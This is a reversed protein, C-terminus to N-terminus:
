NLGLKKMTRWRDKIMVPTRKKFHYAKFIAKWNGEGFKKVGARIWETEETTWRVKQKKTGSTISTNTSEGGSSACDFLEDEGSWTDMEERWSNVRQKSLRPFRPTRPLTPAEPEAPQAALTSPPEKPAAPSACSDCPCATECGQVLKSITVLCQTKQTLSPPGSAAKEEEERRRKVRPSVSPRKSSPWDTEDLKSFDADAEPSDSLAKFAERLTSLEYFAPRRPPYRGSDKPAGQAPCTEEKSSVEPPEATKSPAMAQESAPKSVPAQGAARKSARPAPEPRDEETEGAEGESKHESVAESSRGVSKNKRTEELGAVEEMYESPVMEESETGLPSLAQPDASNTRAMKLLFPESDDLYDELCLLIEQQFAKFSFNWIKSHSFNKEQIISQLALQTKPTSPDKSMPTKLLESAKEFEQNRICAIVAAEKIKRRLKEILAEDLEHEQKMTELFDLASGFPMQEGESDTSWNEELRSLLQIIRLHLRISEELALPRVLVASLIDRLQRFDRARGARFAQLAQHCYHRLVWGDVARGLARGRAEAARAAM